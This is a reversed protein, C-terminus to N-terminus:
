LQSAEDDGSAGSLSLLGEETVLADVPQDWPALPLPKNTVLPSFIVGVARCHRPQALLQDYFGGGYGVRYGRRDYILGPVVILDMAEPALTEPWAAPDPEQIGYAAPALGFALDTVRHFELRREGPVVRPLLVGGKLRILQDLLPRTEIEDGFSCFVAIHRTDPSQVEPLALVAECLAASAEARWQIDLIKRIQRADRRLASKLETLEQTTPDM